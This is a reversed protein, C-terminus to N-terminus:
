KIRIKLPLKGDKLLSQIDITNPETHKFAVESVLDTILDNLNGIPQGDCESQATQNIWTIGTYGSKWGQFNVGFDSYPESAFIWDNSGARILYVDDSYKALNVWMGAAENLFVRYTGNEPLVRDMIAKVEDISLDINFLVRWIYGSNHVPTGEWNYKPLEVEVVEGDYEGQLKSAAIKAGFDPTTSFLKVLLNNKDVPIVRATEQYDIYNKAEETWGINGNNKAPNSTFLLEQKSSRGPGIIDYYYKNSCYADISLARGSSVKYPVYSSPNGSDYDELDLARLIDVVENVDLDTNMYFATTTGDGPVPIGMGEGKCVNIAADVKLSTPIQRKDQILTKVDITGNETVKLESGEYEGSLELMETSSFPAMAFVKYVQKSYQSHGYGGSALESYKLIGNFEPNWGTFYSGSGNSSDYLTQNTLDDEVVFGPYTKRVRLQYSGSGDLPYASYINFGNDSGTDISNFIADVEDISLDINVYIDGFYDYTIANTFPTGSIVDTIKDNQSGLSNWSVEEAGDFWSVWGPTGSSNTNGDFIQSSGLYIDFNDGNRVVSVTYTSSGSRFYGVYYSNSSGEFEINGLIENVKYVDLGTNFYVKSDSLSLQTGPLFGDSTGIIKIVAGEGGGGIISPDVTVIIDEQLGKGKTALQIGNKTKIEFNM